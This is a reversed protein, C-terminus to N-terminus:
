EQVCSSRVCIDHYVWKISSCKSVQRIMAVWGMGVATDRSHFWEDNFDIGFEKCTEVYAPFVLPLKSHDVTPLLHHMAHNGFSVSTLLLSKDITEFRAVSIIQFLGWDMSDVIKDGEHWILPHHHGAGLSINHFFLSAFCYV